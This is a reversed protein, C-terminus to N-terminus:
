PGTGDFMERRGVHNPHDSPATIWYDPGEEYVKLRALFAENRLWDSTENKGVCITVGKVIEPSSSGEKRECVISRKEQEGAEDQIHDGTRFGHFHRHRRGFPRAEYRKESDILPTPLRPYPASRFVDRDHM